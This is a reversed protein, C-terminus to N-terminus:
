VQTECEHNATATNCSNNQLHQTVITSEWQQKTYAAKCINDQTQTKYDKALKARHLTAIHMLHTDLCALIYTHAPTAM